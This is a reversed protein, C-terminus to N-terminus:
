EKCAEVAIGGMLILRDALTSMGHEIHTVISSDRIKALDAVITRM